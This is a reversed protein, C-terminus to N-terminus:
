AARGPWADVFAWSGRPLSDLILATALHHRPVPNPPPGYSDILMHQTPHHGVLLLHVADGLEAALRTTWAEWDQRSDPLEARERLPAPGLCALIEAATQRTRATPTLVVLDPRFGRGALWLGTEGAMRVGASTLEPDAENRRKEGHRVFTIRM